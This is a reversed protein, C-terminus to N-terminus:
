RVFINNIILYNDIGSTSGVAFGIGQMFMRRIYDRKKPHAIRTRNGIINRCIKTNRIRMLMLSEAFTTRALELDWTAILKLLVNSFGIVSEITINIASGLVPATIDLAEIGLSSINNYPLFANYAEILRQGVISNNHIYSNRAEKFFRYSLLYYNIKTPEYYKSTSIQPVIENNMINSMNRNVFAIPRSSDVINTPACQFASEDIGRLIQLEELFEKCFGEYVSFLHSLLVVALNNNIDDLTYNAVAKYNLGHILRKSEGLYNDIDTNNMGQSVCKKIERSFRLMSLRLPHVFTFANTINNIAISSCKCFTNVM